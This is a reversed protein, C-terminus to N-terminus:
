GGGGFALCAAGYLGADEGLQSLEIQTRPAAVPQAWERVLHRVPELILEGAQMLGGGLVILEPNLLSILNASAMALYSAVEELVSRALRDGGKAAQVVQETTLSLPDGGCQETLLSPEGKLLREQAKRAVAPGAAEAELCGVESYIPKWLPNVAM